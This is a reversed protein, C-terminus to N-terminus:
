AQRYFRNALVHELGLVVAVIAILLPFLERGVRSDHIQRDIQDQSRALAFKVGELQERLEAESTRDLRTADPPLNVSFGLEVGKEGGAKVRYNGASETNPVALSAGSNDPAQLFQDKPTTVQYTPFRQEGDLHLVVPQGALYNLQTEGGGVLYLTMENVLMVFPWPEFGTPLLNWRDGSANVPDESFPTTLALVRGRGVVKELLAPRNNTYPIVTQVGEALKDFQWYRFVPFAEWPISGRLPRFKALLPHDSADPALALDGDPYRGQLGLTGPLLEQAAPSHFGEPQAHEGLVLAVGGGGVVYTGLRQWVPDALPPPDLLLVAAYDDLTISALKGYSATTCVFRAQGNKRFSAPSLAEAVYISQEEVPPPAVVLLKWASRVVATFYRTDDAALGDEGVIRLYGQHVGQDLGGLAFQVAASSGSEVQVAEESRKEARGLQDIVYSEVVKRGGTGTSSVDTAVVLPTNRAVIQGSLRIEGLAFDKPQEVGVDIIQMRVGRTQKLRQGLRNLEAAPWAGRSLDTFVYLERPLSSKELLQCASEVVRTVPLATRDAELRQIRQKAAGLDIQFVPADNSGDLVGVQSEEPLRALLWLANERAVELRTRNEHRYQMHPQSDFVLAAAVPGERKGFVSPADVTPRALALALLGIAGARLALLLLQRLRLRRQNTDHRKQIFRLAPFELHKPRQRMVLHIIIPIVALGAGALLGPNLLADM